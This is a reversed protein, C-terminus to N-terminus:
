GIDHVLRVTLRNNSNTNTIYGGGKSANNTYKFRLFNYESSSKITTSWYLGDFSAYYLESTNKVCGAAPMFICGAAKLSYWQDATISKSYSDLDKYNVNMGYTEGDYGDPFVVLGNTGDISVKAFRNEYSRSDMIYEWQTSTLTYWGDGYAEVSKSIPTNSASAIESWSFYPSGAQTYSYTADSTNTTYEGNVTNTSNYSMGSDFTVGTGTRILNGPSFYVQKGSAITFVPFFINDAFAFQKIYNKSVAVGASSTKIQTKGSSEKFTITTYTAEPLAIYFDTDSTINVAPSCTLTYSSTSNRVIISSLNIGTSHLTIKLVGCDNTFELDTGTITHGTMPCNSGTNSSDYVQNTVDGYHAVYNGDEKTPDPDSNNKKTFTAKSADTADPTATYVINNAGITIEDGTEWEVKGVSENIDISTRTMDQCIYGTFTLGNKPGDTLATKDCACLVAAM